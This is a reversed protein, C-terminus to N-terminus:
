NRRSGDARETLLRFPIQHALFSGAVRDALHELSSGGDAPTELLRRIDAVAPDVLREFLAEKGPFYAYINGPTIGANQAIRRMSSEQFGKELFEERAAQLIRQRVEEKLIQM